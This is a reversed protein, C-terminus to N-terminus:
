EGQVRCLYEARCQAEGEYLLKFAESFEDACVFLGHGYVIASSSKSGAIAQPLTHCLGYQGAGVEGSVVPIDCVSRLEVCHTHCQGRLECEKSCDMSLIVAFSPHGHLICSSDTKEYVGIHASLESSATLGACSSGDMPCPDICGALNDLSSGTQSILVTEGQRYSINGFYSDVLGYDVTAKGAAVIANKISELSTADVAPLDPQAEPLEPLLAWIEKFAQQEEGSLVGEQSKKLYESFYLVSLSFCASSFSVFCQELTVNGCAAIYVGDDGEIIVAKRRGLSPTLSAPSVDRVVPLVHLFTRTESDQPILEEAGERLLEKLIRTYFEAPRAILFGNIPLLDFLRCADLGLPMLGDSEVGDNRAALCCSEAAVLGQRKLKEKYFEIQSM